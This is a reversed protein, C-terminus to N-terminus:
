TQPNGPTRGHRDGWGESGASVFVQGVQAEVRFSPCLTVGGAARAGEGPEIKEARQEDQGQRECGAEDRAGAGPRAFSGEPVGSRREVPQGQDCAAQQGGENSRPLCPAHDGGAREVAHAPVKRFREARQTSVFAEQEDRRVDVTAGNLQPQRVVEDHFHAPVVEDVHGSQNVQSQGPVGDVEDPRHGKGVQFTQARQMQITPSAVNGPRLEQGLPEDIEIM